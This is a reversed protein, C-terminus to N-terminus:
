VVRDFAPKVAAAELYLPVADSHVQQPKGVGNPMVKRLNNVSVRYQKVGAQEKKYIVQRLTSHYKMKNDTKHNAKFVPCSLFLYSISYLIHVCVYM